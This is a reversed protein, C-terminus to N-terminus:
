ASRKDCFAVLLIAGPLNTFKSDFSTPWNLFKPPSCLKHAAGEIAITAVYISQISICHAPINPTQMM